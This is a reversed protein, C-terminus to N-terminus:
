SSASGADGTGLLRTLMTPHWRAEGAPTEIGRRTLERALGKASTFGEARLAAVVERLEATGAARTAASATL